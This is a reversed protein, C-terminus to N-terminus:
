LDPVMVYLTLESLNTKCFATASSQKESIMLISVLLPALLVIGVSQETLDKFRVLPNHGTFSTTLKSFIIFVLLNSSAQLM